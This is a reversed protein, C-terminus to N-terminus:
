EAENCAVGRAEVAKRLNVRCLLSETPDLPVFPPEGNANCNGGRSDIVARQGDATRIVLLRDTFTCTSVTVSGSVIDAFLQLLEPCPCTMLCPLPHDSHKEYNKLVSECGKDSAHQNPDTCDMAECYANCLGYAAGRENDCVTEESPTKGDPTKAFVSSTGIFLICFVLIWLSKRM